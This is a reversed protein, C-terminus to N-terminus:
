WGDLLFWRHFMLEDENKSDEDGGDGKGLRDYLGVAAVPKDVGKCVPFGFVDESVEVLQAFSQLLAMGVRQGDVDLRPDVPYVVGVVSGDATAIRRYSHGDSATVQGDDSQTLCGVLGYECALASLAM